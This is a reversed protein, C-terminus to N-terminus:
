EIAYTVRLRAETTVEGPAIPTDVQMASEARMDIGGYHKPMPRAIGETSVEQVGKLVVKLAEAIAAAQMGADAAAQRLALAQLPGINEVTFALSDIRAAGASIAADILAGGRDIQHTEVAITHAAIYGIIKPGEPPKSPIPEPHPAQRYVPHLTYGVTDIRGGDGVDKKLADIVRVATAAAAQGAESASAGNQEVIVQLQATDPAGSERGVGVVTLSRRKPDAGPTQAHASSWTSFAVAAIVLAWRSRSRQKSM